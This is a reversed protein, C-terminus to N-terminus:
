SLSDEASCASRVCRGAAARPSVALMSRSHVLTIAAGSARRRSRRAVKVTRGQEAQPGAAPISRLLWLAALGCLFLIATLAM